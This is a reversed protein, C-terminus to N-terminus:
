GGASAQARGKLRGTEESKKTRGRHWFWGAAALMLAAMAVVCQLLPTLATSDDAPVPVAVPVPVAHPGPLVVENAPAVQNGSAAQPARSRPLLAEVLRVSDDGDLTAAVAQTAQLIPQLEPGIESVDGAGVGGVATNVSPLLGLNREMRADPEGGAAVPMAGQDGIVVTSSGIVAIPSPAPLPAVPPNINPPGGPPQGPIPPEPAPPPSPPLIPVPSPAPSPSPSPPPPLVDIAVTSTAIGPGGLEAPIQDNTILTLTGQGVRGPQPVYVLGALAADLAALSGTYTLTSSGNGFGTLGTLSALVLSGHGVTLNIEMSDTSGVYSDTISLATAARFVIPVDENTTQPGPVSNVPPRERGCFESTNGAANTATASLFRVDPDATYTHAYTAHGTADTVADEHGLYEQGQGFGSADFASNAFFEIRYKTNPAADLRGFVTRLNGSATVQTLVPYDQFDNPGIHGASDNLTVGDDGLDIGLGANAFIANELISNGIADTGVIVVGKSNHAITNGAGSATGGITNGAAGGRLDVGHRTNGLASSGSADTGIRNGQVLTGTAGLVAVGDGGNGSIVNGNGASSGGITNDNGEVLVGSEENALPVNGTAGVGILNGQVTNSRGLLEVGSGTNGAIVNGPAAGPTSTLGGLVAGPAHLEVGATRNGRALTGSRDTGIYNSQITLTGASADSYIGSDGNASIVNRAAASTGGIIVNGSNVAADVGHHDNGLSTLGDAGLGITNGAVLSGTPTAVNTTSPVQSGADSTMAYPYMPMYPQSTTNSFRVGDSGNASIVNGAGPVTGGITNGAAFVNVGNGGNPLAANGTVDVGIYNGEIVNNMGATILVGDASNGAIVNRAAATTGGITNGNAGMEILVGTVNAVANTGSADTGVFNGAVVNGPGSGNLDIGVKMGSLVNGAVTNGNAGGVIFVGASGPNPFAATGSADTGIFNGMVVNMTTGSGTITVGTGNGSILNRAAASTGGITNGSAGAQIIVGTQNALPATGSVDTGLTNGEVLNGTTGADSIRIGVGNGSILNRASAMAGGVTNGSAGQALAIGTINAVAVSGAADTGVFNGAIVNATTGSGTIEVGNNKNGSVVNGSATTTGGLTNGSAGNEVLIGTSNGLALAGTVDTGVFNGAVVNAMTGSGSIDVGVQNGSILNRDGVAAGGITEGSCGNDILVGTANPVAATGAADTGIFNGVVLTGVTGGGTFHIGVTNGSIVNRAGPGTGGITNNSDGSEVLIGTTNGLALTGTVDTGVFNGAVVHGMTGSGVLDIGNNLNGSIVNRAGPVTGGITNGTAGNEIVIGNNNAVPGTGSANTGILNGAIENATGTVHIGTGTNGSIVNGAGVVTGGITNGGAGNLVEIGTVNPLAASASANTGIYNGAVVNATASSGTLSIGVQNGSIVNRTGALTGGIVAGSAFVLIGAGKNGRALAGTRDTGILNGQVVLNTSAADDFIGSDGNGSVINRRAASAGGITVDRSDGAVDVGHGGNGLATVGDAGLGIINGAVLSGIPLSVENTANHFQVGDGQNGSIVNGAGTVTGGITNGDATVTIGNGGNGLGANGTNNVGIFNGAVTNAPAALQVGSGTNGAIVNGAAATTGGITNATAGMEIAIGAANPVASTGSVDTGIFNGEVLNDTTGSGTIEVGTTNGSIVNRATVVTGGITNGSAGNDLLIGTGNAVAFTGTVDTGIHNGEVINVTTGSGSVHIGTGNGSIVNRAGVTTGGVTNGRAGSDIFTGNNKNAVAATGTVDTGIYNGEVVNATTGTGLLHIGTTNGSILNRAAADTGGIINASAGNEIFVGDGNAIAFTGTADTGLYNGEVVNATVTTGTLEIGVTNGSILNRDGTEKGGITCGTAGGELLIGIGNAIAATGAANTGVYNGIILNAPTGSGVLDIGTANGSIVNRAAAATGGVTNGSAGSEILVGTSNGVATTGNADTGIFNGAIVNAQTASGTIDIGAHTNGSIVNGADPATGGITNDSAAQEIVVGTINGLPKSGTFDTGIDNREVLNATTGSGTIDIGEHNGSIVNLTSTVTGGITNDAAGDEIVVGRHNAVAATGTVDTGIYDGEVVNATTGTGLLHIGTTNGSILNRAAADTGGIINASAGNEILVGDGNAIAFTGTADTGIYNGEVANATTTTGILEIGVTNGSILNRDGTEKGGITYGTAGSELLIGIGNAIAATGAANSGVDNGIILNAPTASGVLDIGTINGSILNRAAADTGGIINASAGNEILVGDGNAIAFTGTADTGLYNGEVVNATVTAGTLEIGVTNGSIVNGDGTGNGGITYGAAGGELLIGIGNAIAANGAANTGIYNGTILNAPSAPGVLDIGTANGSIVNRAAAVTGGITNGSAGFEILMGIANAVAHTGSADTGIFNGAVVNAQTASGTLDIGAHTNGSIVNGAGPDTGGLTNGSAGQEIVVGTINGLAATGTFDTGIDNGEVLNASTGTGTLDIGQHNGSVVNMTSTLLGGITNDAAGDQIVVGRDNGLAATGTVDTGIYNGEVVNAMTGTGLLHVGTVNGSILNRAAADTGGIINASAGNEILVGDGNAIAVTGTADTGLYNGEVVNATTTTGTLDIGTANGSIVNRAAAVTGGITNGSAGFEILIGIANAVAHTGSADTGVFNGAVVNALTASGVIDVGARTNGSIVNGTDPTTSGIANGGAGNLLYVGISNAIAYTGTVDTGIYNGTVLNANSSDIIIGDTNGSILNRTQADTGGITDSGGGASAILIGVSNGLGITGNIDTGIYNGEVVDGTSGSALNVGNGENGSILNRAEAM